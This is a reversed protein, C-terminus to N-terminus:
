SFPSRLNMVEFECAFSAAPPPLFPFNNKLYSLGRKTAVVEFECAFSAAFLEDGRKGRHIQVLLALLNLGVSYYLLYISGVVSYSTHGCPPWVLEAQQKVPVFAGTFHRGENAAEQKALIQVKTGPFCSFQASIYM